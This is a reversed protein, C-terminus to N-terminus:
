FRKHFLWIGLVSLGLMIFLVGVIDMLWPGLGLLRGAHLDLLVREWNLSLANQELATQLNSPLQATTSSSINQTTEAWAVDNVNLAYTRNNANFCIEKPATECQGLEQLPRPLPYSANIREVVEGQATFLAIEDGCAAVIINPSGDITPALAIGSFTGVCHTIQTSNHYLHEGSHSVWQGAIQYSHIVPREIGYLSLLFQQHVPQEALGLDDTHNLLIGSASLWIIFILFTIGLRRHWRWLIARWKKHIM